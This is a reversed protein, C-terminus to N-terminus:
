RATVNLEAGGKKREGPAHENNNGETCQSGGKEGKPTAPSPDQGSPDHCCTGNPWSILRAM